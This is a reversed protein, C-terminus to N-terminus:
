TEKEPTGITCWQSLAHAIGGIKYEHSPGFDGLTARVYRTVKDMDIGPKPSIGHDSLRGGRFFISSLAECFPGRMRKEDETLESEPPLLQRWRGQFACDMASVEPIGGDTWKGERGPTHADSVPQRPSARVQAKMENRRKQSRKGM